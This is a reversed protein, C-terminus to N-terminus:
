RSGPRLRRAIRRLTKKVSSGLERRRRERRFAASEPAEVLLCMELNGGLQSKFHTVPNLAADTLDNAAAGLAALREFVSWRLFATAGLKLHAADSGAAVTHFVPHGGALVLQTSVSAGGPLRAHYLRALGATRLTEFYRRFDERPLYLKAGKREHVQAHLRFFSEFDDDETVTLGQAACRDVLRRLNHEMRGRLAELDTLPVVYTYQPRASWGKALLVRVDTLPSRCRLEVRGLGLRALGEALAELIENSRSTVQSPYRTEFRRLVIGNYYLLLRPGVFVGAPSRREYLAVGGLIEDGRTAALIRFSGGTARCLVDLYEPTSYISGEASRCVVANWAAFESEALIRATVGPKM